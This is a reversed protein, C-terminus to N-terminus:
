KRDRPRPVRWGHNAVLDKATKADFKQIGKDTRFLEVTKAATSKKAAKKKAVKKSAKAM